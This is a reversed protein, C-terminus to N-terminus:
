ATKLELRLVKERPTMDECNVITMVREFIDRSLLEGNEDEKESLRKLTDLMENYGNESENIVNYLSIFKKYNGNVYKLNIFLKGDHALEHATLSLPVLGIYNSYHLKTVEEALDFPNFKTMGNNIKNDLVISVIDFLTFPYHHFELKSNNLELINVAPLFTCRTLDLENKLFGIYNRYEFSKRIIREISKIFKKKCKDDFLIDTHSYNVKNLLSGADINIIRITNDRPALSTTDINPVLM